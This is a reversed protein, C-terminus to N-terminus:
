NEYSKYLFRRIKQQANKEFAEKRITFDMIKKYGVLTRNVNEIENKVLSHIFADDTGKGPHDLAITEYNPVIVAFIQEGRTNAEKRGVVLAEQIVRSGSFHAEIEEPYINKGGSSVILNKKRGSIYLYGDEDRYGLDGTKLYPIGDFREFMEETAEPNNYYGLMLSPSRVAIEGVHEENEDIIKIETYKVPLGVSENRKFTPLNVSILPGNESMGYGHVINFGFSDFFDATKPNLAGGGAVMIRISSLRAKKRIIAMAVRGFGIRGKKAEALSIKRLVDFVGKLLPSLKNYGQGIADMVKDYLLPVAILFTGGADKIDDIVVKGILKEVIIFGAGCALPSIFSCTTPYTHHLPLVNIFIDKETPCLARIAGNANAIIGKHSLMVGKAFGTTGSTFVISVPDSEAIDEVKPLVLSEADAGFVDFANTESDSLCVKVPVQVADAFGQKRQSYFFAKAQTIELINACEKESILFDIPVVVMGAIASGMWVATWEPRNEAWLAVRDGKQLGAALLGRAVQRCKTAFHKFSWETFTKQKGSRYFIATKDQYQSEIGGLFAVFNPYPMDPLGSTYEETKYM